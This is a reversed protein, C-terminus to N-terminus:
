ATHATPDPLCLTWANPIVTVRVFSADGVRVGDLWLPETHSEDIWQVQKAREIALNPHPLHDGLRARRRIALNTRLSVKGQFRLADVLGDNPHARPAVNFSGLFGGATVWFRPKWYWGVRVSSVVHRVLPDRDIALELLDCPLQLCPRGPEPAVIRRRTNPLAGTARLLDGSTLAIFRAGGRVLEAAERESSAVRMERPASDIAGWPLGKAITM